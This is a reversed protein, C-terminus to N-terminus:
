GPTAARPETEVAKEEHIAGDDEDQEIESEIGHYHLM